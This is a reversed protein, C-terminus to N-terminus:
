LWDDPDPEPLPRRHHLFWLATASALLPLLFTPDVLTVTLWISLAAIVLCSRSARAEWMLRLLVVIRHRTTWPNPRPRPLPPEAVEVSPEARAPPVEPAIPLSRTPEPLRAIRHSLRDLKPKPNDNPRFRLAAPDFGYRQVLELSVDAEDSPPYSFVEASVGDETRLIVLKQDGECSPDERDLWETVFDVAAFFETFGTILDRAAGDAAILRVSFERKEHWAAHRTDRAM